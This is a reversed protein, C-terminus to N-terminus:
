RWHRRLEVVRGLIQVADPDLVIPPYHPNAAVLAVRRGRREFTKVTAEDDVLAVVIDGPEAKDQRRVIVIDGELIGLGNMSDGHVRLAFYDGRGDGEITVYGEPTEIAAHLAGAQVRGVLPVCRTRMARGRQEALRYSRSRGPTKVLRGEAVLADLHRRASEVAEFGMAAQVERVTPPSGALLRERVFRFV